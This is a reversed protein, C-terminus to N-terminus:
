IDMGRRFRPMRIDHRLVLGSVSLLSTRPRRLCRDLAGGECFDNQMDIGLLVDSEGIQITGIM